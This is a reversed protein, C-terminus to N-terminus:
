NRRGLNRWFVEQYKKERYDMKWSRDLGLRRNEKTSAKVPASFHIAEPEFIGPTGQL